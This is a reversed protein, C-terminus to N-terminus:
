NEYEYSVVGGFYSKVRLYTRIDIIAFLQNIVVINELTVLCSGIRIMFYFMNTSFAVM